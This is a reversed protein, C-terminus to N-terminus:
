QLEREVETEIYLSPLQTIISYSYTGGNAGDITWASQDDSKTSTWCFEGVGLDSVYGRDYLDTAEARSVLRYGSPAGSKAGEWDTRKPIYILNREEYEGFNNQVEVSVDVHVSSTDNDETPVTTTEETPDSQLETEEKEQAYETGCATLFILTFLLNRM